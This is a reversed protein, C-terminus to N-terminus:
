SDPAWKSQPSRARSSRRGLSSRSVKKHVASLMKRLKRMKKKKRRASSCDKRVLADIELRNRTLEKRIRHTEAKSVDAVLAIESQLTMPNIQTFHLNPSTQATAVAFEVRSQANWRACKALESRKPLLAQRSAVCVRAVCLQGELIAPKAVVTFLEDDSRHRTASLHPNSFVEAGESTALM